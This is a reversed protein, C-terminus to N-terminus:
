NGSWDQNKRDDYTRRSNWSESILCSAFAVFFCYKTVTM